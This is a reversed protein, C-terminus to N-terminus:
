SAERRQTPDVFEYACVNCLTKSHGGFGNFTEHNKPDSGCKPCNGSPRKGNKDVIM